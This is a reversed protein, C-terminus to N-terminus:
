YDIKEINGGAQEIEESNIQLEAALQKRKKNLEKRKEILSKLEYDKDTFYEVLIKRIIKSFHQNGHRKILEEVIHRAPEKKTGFNVGKRLYKKKSKIKIGSRKKM